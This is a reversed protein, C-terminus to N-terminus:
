EKYNMPQPDPQEFNLTNFHRLNAKDELDTMVVTPYFDRDM